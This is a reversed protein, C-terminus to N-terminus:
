KLTCIVEEAPYVYQVLANLHIATIRHFSVGLFKLEMEGRTRLWLYRQGFFEFNNEKLWQEALNSSSFPGINGQHEHTIGDEIRIIHM